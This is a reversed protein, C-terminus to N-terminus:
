PLVEKELEIYEERTHQVISHGASGPYLLQSCHLLPVQLGQDSLCIAQLLLHYCHHGEGPSRLGAGCSREQGVAPLGVFLWAHKACAPGSCSLCQLVATLYWDLPLSSPPLLCSHLVLTM